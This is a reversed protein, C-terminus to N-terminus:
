LAARITIEMPIFNREKETLFATKQKDLMVVVVM